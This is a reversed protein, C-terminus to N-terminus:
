FTTSLSRKINSCQVKMCIQESQIMKASLSNTLSDFRQKFILQLNWTEGMNGNHPLTQIWAQIIESLDKKCCQTSVYSYINILKKRVLEAPQIVRDGSKGDTLVILVRPVGESIPRLGSSEKFGSTVVETIAAGTRTGAEVYIFLPSAHCRNQCLVASTFVLQLAQLTRSAVKTCNLLKKTVYNTWFEQVM